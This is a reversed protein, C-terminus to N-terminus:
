RLMIMASMVISFAQMCVCAACEWVRSMQAMWESNAQMKRQNTLITNHPIVNTLYIILTIWENMWEYTVHM